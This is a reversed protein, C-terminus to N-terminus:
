HEVTVGVLSEVKKAVLHVALMLAKTEAKSVARWAVTKAAWTAVWSDVM